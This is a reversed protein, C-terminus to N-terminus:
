LERFFCYTKELILKILYYYIIIINYNIFVNFLDNLNNILVLFLFYKFRRLIKENIM